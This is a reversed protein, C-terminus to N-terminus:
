QVPTVSSGEFLKRRQLYLVYERLIKINIDEISDSLNRSRLYTRFQKLNRSYWEVTKPSKGEARNCIEYYDLLESLTKSTINGNNNSM